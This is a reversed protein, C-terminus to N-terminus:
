YYLNQMVVKGSPHFQVGEQKLLTQKMALGGQYGGLTGDSKIARDCPIIIPFPNRALANGVVRSGHKIGVHKAIRKYTSIWGRPIGAEARLIRQQTKSCQSWDLLSLDFQVANGQLFSQLVGIFREMPPATDKRAHPCAEQARLESPKGPKTLFIHSVLFPPPTSLWVITMTNFPTPFTIYSEPM